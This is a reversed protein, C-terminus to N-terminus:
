YSWVYVTLQVSRLFSILADNGKLVSKLKKNFNSNVTALIKRLESYTVNDSLLNCMKRVYDDKDMIVLVQSKDAKTIHLDNDNKLDSYCKIFRRPVSTPIPKSLAGYVIGKCISLEDSSLSCNRELYNFSNAVDVYDVNEKSFSFSLGYGLASSVDEELLPRSSLNIVFDPNAHNNWDSNEILGKLKRELRNSVRRCTTRLKRYCYNMLPHKWDVPILMHFSRRKESLNYFADQVDTKAM